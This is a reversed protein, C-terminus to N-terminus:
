SDELCRERKRWLMWQKWGMYWGLLLLGWTLSPEPTSAANGSSYRTATQRGGSNNSVMGDPTEPEVTEERSTSNPAVRPEDSVAVFATHKSMLRYGLAVNTVAEVEQQTEGDAMQLMLEKIKARGWLQAIAENGSDADFRLGFTKEYRKGGAAVGTIRLNGSLRDQKRGYLVLPERAFLDTPKIPFIEPAEGLGEWSVEINTLVPNNIESLFEEVVEDVSEDHRVVRVTGRGVEALRNLLFRNVSSGVGFSYLRNGPELQQQIRYIIQNENGILGDTLLVISRL